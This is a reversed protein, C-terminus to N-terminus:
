VCQSRAFVHKGAQVAELVSASPIGAVHHLARRGCKPQEFNTCGDLGVRAQENAIQVKDGHSKELNAKAAQVKGENVDSIAVLRVSDNVAM